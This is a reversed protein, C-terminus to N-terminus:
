PDAPKIKAALTRLGLDEIWRAPQSLSKRDAFLDCLGQVESWAGDLDGLIYLVQANEPKPRFRDFWRHRRYAEVGDIIELEVALREMAAHLEQAVGESDGEVHVSWRDPLGDLLNELRSRTGRDDCEYEKPKELIEINKLRCVADFALGVNIYFMKEDWTSGHSSQLQVVQVVDGHRRHFTQAKKRFGLPKLVPTVARKVVDDFLSQSPSKTRAM